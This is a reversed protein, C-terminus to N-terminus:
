GLLANWSSVLKAGQGQAPARPAQSAPFSFWMLRSCDMNSLACNPHWRVAGAEM